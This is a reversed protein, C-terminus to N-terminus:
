QKPTSPKGGVREGMQQLSERAANAVYYDKTWFLPPTLLTGHADDKLLERLRPITERARLQGALVAGTRRERADKSGLYKLAYDISKKKGYDRLSDWKEKSISGRALESNYWKENRLEGDKLAIMLTEGWFLRIFLIEDEPGFFTLADKQWWVSSVSIPIFVAKGDVVRCLEIGLSDLSHVKVLEGRWGYIVVPLTGVHHWEDFTVVYRGSDTVLAHVPAENNVLYRKWVLTRKNGDIRFLEALCWGIRDPWKEDPTVRLVHKRSPSEYEIQKPLEWSDARLETTGLSLLFAFILTPGPRCSHIM